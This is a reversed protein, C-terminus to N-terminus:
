PRKRLPKRGLAECWERARRSAEPGSFYEGKLVHLMRRDHEVAFWLRGHVVEVTYRRGNAGQMCLVHNVVGWPGNHKV